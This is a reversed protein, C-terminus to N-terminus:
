EQHSPQLTGPTDKTITVTHGTYRYHRLAFFEAWAGSFWGKNYFYRSSRGCDMCEFWHDKLVHEVLPPTLGM